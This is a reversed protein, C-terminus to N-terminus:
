DPKTARSSPSSRRMPTATPTPGTTWTSSRNGCVEDASDDDYDRISVTGDLHLTHDGDALAPTAGGAGLGVTLLLMATIRTSWRM